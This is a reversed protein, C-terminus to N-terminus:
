NTGVGINIPVTLAASGSGGARERVMRELALNGPVKGSATYSSDARGGIVAEGCRHTGAAAALLVQIWFGRSQGRLVCKWRRFLAYSEAECQQSERRRHILCRSGSM